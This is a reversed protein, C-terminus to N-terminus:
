KVKPAPVADLLADEKKQPVCRMLGLRETTSRLIQSVREAEVNSLTNM